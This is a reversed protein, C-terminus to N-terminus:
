FRYFIGASYRFNNQRNNHGDNFKTLYYEAQIPRIAIHPTLAYDVGGGATMGFANMSTGGGSFRNGGFLAQAFPTFKGSHYSVRPGFLYSIINGNFGNSSGTYGGFDAVVGIMPTVNYSIAGSGGNANASVGQDSVHLYSYGAFAEVKSSDDSQAMAPRAFAIALIVVVFWVWRKM